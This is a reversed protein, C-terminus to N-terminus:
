LGGTSALPSSPFQQRWSCESSVLTGASGVESPSPAQGSSSSNIVRASRPTKSRLEGGLVTTIIEGDRFVWVKDGLIWGGAPLTCTALCRSWAAVSKRSVSGLPRDVPKSERFTQRHLQRQCGRVRSASASYNKASQISPSRVGKNCFLWPRTRPSLQAQPTRRGGGGPQPPSGLPRSSPGLASHPTTRTDTRRHVRWEAQRRCWFRCIRPAVHLKM